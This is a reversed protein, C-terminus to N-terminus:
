GPTCCPSLQRSHLMMVATVNLNANVTPAAAQPHVPLLVASATLSLSALTAASTAALPHCKSTPRQTLVACTLCPPHKGHELRGVPVIFNLLRLHGKSYCAHLPLNFAALQSLRPGPVVVPLTTLIHATAFCVDM